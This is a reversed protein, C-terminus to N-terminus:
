VINTSKSCVTMAHNVLSAYLEALILEDFEADSLKGDYVNM